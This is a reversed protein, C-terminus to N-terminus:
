GLTSFVGADLKRGKLDGLLAMAMKKPQFWSSALEVIQDNTVSDIGRALEELQVERGFYIENRALRNMRSETGELRGMKKSYYWTIVNGSHSQIDRVPADKRAKEVLRRGKEPTGLRDFLASLEILGLLM